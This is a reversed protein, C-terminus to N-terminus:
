FFLGLCIRWGSCCLGGLGGGINVVGCLVVWEYLLLWEEWCVCVVVMVSGMLESDFLLLCVIYNCIKSCCKM